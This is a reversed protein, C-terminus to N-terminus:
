AHARRRRWYWQITAIVLPHRLWRLVHEVSTVHATAEAYRRALVDLDSELAIRSAAVTASLQRVRRRARLAQPVVALVGVVAILLGAVLTGQGVLAAWRLM